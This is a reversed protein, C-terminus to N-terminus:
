RVGSLRLGECLIQKFEPKIEPVLNVMEGASLDPYSEVLRKATRRATPLDGSLAQCATLLRLAPEDDEMLGCLRVAEAYDGLKFAIGAGAWWYRDPPLPNLEISRTFMQWATQTDGFHNLADAYQLLLDASHPCLTKALDLQDRSVDYDRQYLAVVGLMWHGTAESPDVDIAQEAEARGRHLLHPDTGGLLLWELIITQARRALAEAWRPERELAASFCRRARRLAPLSSVRCHSLASLYDRYAEPGNGSKVQSIRDKEAAEALEAAIQYSLFRYTRRLQDLEAPYEVAWLVRGNRNEVLRVALVDHEPVVQSFVSFDTDLKQTLDLKRCDSVQFSSHVSIVSFSRYRALCNVVDEILARFIWSDANEQFFQPPFLSVSGNPIFRDTPPTPASVRICAPRTSTNGKVKQNDCDLRDLQELRRRVRERAVNDGARSYTDLILSAVEPHDPVLPILRDILPDVMTSDPLGFRTIERLAQTAQALFVGILRTRQTGLWARFFEGEEPVSKLLVDRVDVLTQLRHKIGLRDSLNILCALDSDKLWSGPRLEDQFPIVLADAERSARRVRVLLQRLNALARTEHANEWLLTAAEQRTAVGSSTLILMAFLPFARRPLNFIRDADQCSPVGFLRVKPPREYSM